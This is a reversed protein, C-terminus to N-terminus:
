NIVNKKWYCPSFILMESVNKALQKYLVVNLITDQAWKVKKSKKAYYIHFSYFKWIVFM